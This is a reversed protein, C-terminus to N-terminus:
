STSTLQCPFSTHGMKWFSPLTHLLLYKQCDLHSINKCSPVCGFAFPVKSRFSFKVTWCRQPPSKFIQCEGDGHAEKLDPSQLYISLSKQFDHSCYCCSPADPGIPRSLRCDATCSPAPGVPEVEWFRSGWRCVICLAAWAEQVVLSGQPAQSVYLRKLLLKSIRNLPDTIPGHNANRDFNKIM